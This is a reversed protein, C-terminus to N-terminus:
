VNKGVMEKKEIKISIILMLSMVILMSPISWASEGMMMVGATLPGIMSFIGWVSGLLSTVRLLETGKFNEGSGVMSLVYIGGAAGGLIFLAPWWWITNLSFPILIACVFLTLSCVMHTKKRGYKDSMEGVLWELITDGALIVSASLLAFSQSMGQSMAYLPFLSLIITDFLAFFGTSLIVSPYNKVYYFWSHKIEFLTEHHDNKQLYLWNYIPILFIFFITCILFEM